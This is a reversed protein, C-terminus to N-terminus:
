AGVQLNRLTAELATPSVLHEANLVEAPLAVGLAEEVHVARAIAVLEPDGAGDAPIAVCEALTREILDHDLAALLRRSLSPAFPPGWGIDAIFVPVRAVVDSMQEFLTGQMGPDRVGLIRPFSLLALVAAIGDVRTLSVEDCGRRPRPILLAALPVGDQTASPVSLARRQDATARHMGGQAFDESLRAASPRLRLETAGLHCGFGGDPQASLRLVDDTILLGGDRCLLTALTTKGMGSAGVFAVARGGVDVASAHLVTEGRLMLVYSLVTGAVLVAGMAPDVGEVMHVTIRRAAADVVVECTDEFSLLHGGDWTRVFSATQGTPISWQVLLEGAPVASSAPVSAGWEVTVDPRSGVAARRTFLDLQSSIDLGYLRCDFGATANTM